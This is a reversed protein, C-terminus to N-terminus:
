GSQNLKKRLAALEDTATAAAEPNITIDINLFIGEALDEPLLDLPFQFSDGSSTELIAWQGEIREVAVIHKM